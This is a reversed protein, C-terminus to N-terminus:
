PKVRSPRRLHIYLAGSGGHEVAAETYSVVLSRLDQEALWLPVNRKLVGRQLERSFAGHEEEYSRLSSTGKGTIVLVWRKGQAYSSQLFRKLASHAEHQRMGHLDIRAEIPFHGKRLKRAHQKDFLPLSSSSTKTQTDEVKVLPSSTPQRSVRTNTESKLDASPRSVSVLKKNEPIFSQALERPQPRPLPKVSRTLQAWIEEDEESLNRKKQSHKDKKDIM